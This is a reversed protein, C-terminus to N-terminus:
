SRWNESWVRKYNHDLDWLSGEYEFCIVSSCVPGHGALNQFIAVEVQNKESSIVLIKGFPTGMESLESKPWVEFSVKDGSM